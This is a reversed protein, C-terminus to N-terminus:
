LRRRLLHFRALLARETVKRRDSMEAIAAYSGKTERLEADHDEGWYEPLRGVKAPRARSVLVGGAGGGSFCARQNM